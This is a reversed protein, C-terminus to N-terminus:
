RRRVTPAAGLMSEAGIVVKAAQAARDLDPNDDGDYLGEVASEKAMPSDLMAHFNQHWPRHVGLIQQPPISQMSTITSRRGELDEADRGRGIDLQDPHMYGEVVNQNYLLNQSPPGANAFVLPAETTGREFSDQAAKISIGEVPIRDAGEDSTYHNFRVAGAPVPTEGFRPPVEAPHGFQRPNLAM